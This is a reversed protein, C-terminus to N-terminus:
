FLKLQNVGIEIDEPKMKNPQLLSDLELIRKRFEEHGKLVRCKGKFFNRNRFSGYKEDEVQKTMKSYWIDEIELIITKGIEKDIGIDVFVPQGSEGGYRVTKIPDIWSYKGYGYDIRGAAAAGSGDFLWVINKYFKNRKKIEEATISSKQIELVMGNPLSVDAIRAIGGKVIRVEVSEKDFLGKFTFHWETESEYNEALCNSKSKAEHRWYHPVILGTCAVVTEFCFPCKARGGKYPLTKEGDKLAYIM